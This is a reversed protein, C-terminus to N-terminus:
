LLDGIQTLVLISDLSNFQSSGEASGAAGAETPPEKRKKGRAQPVTTPM